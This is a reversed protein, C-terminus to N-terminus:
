GEDDIFVPQPATPPNHQVLRKFVDMEMEEPEFPTKQLQAKREVMSLDQLKYDKMTKEYLAALGADDTNVIRDKRLNKITDANFFDSKRYRDSQKQMDEVYTWRYHYICAPAVLPTPKRNWSYVHTWDPMPRRNCDFAGRHSVDYFLIHMLDRYGNDKLADVSFFSKCLPPEGNGNGYLNGPIQGKNIMRFDDIYSKGSQIAKDSGIGVWPIGLQEWPLDEYKKLFQKVSQNEKFYLFEDADLVIIYDAGECYREAYKHRGRQRQIDEGSLEIPIVEVNEYVNPLPATENDFETHNNDLVFIKDFGLSHHWWLWEKYAEMNPQYQLSVLNVRVNKRVMGNREVEVMWSSDKFTREPRGFKENVAQIVGSWAKQYDHGSIIGAMRVKPLWAEVDAKVAEYTHNADIYIFDFSGDEFENAASVSDSKRKEICQYKAAVEDFKKEALETTNSAKAQENWGNKWADVCVIKDFVGSQAWIESSEGAYSGVEVMKLGRGLKKEVEVILDELGAREGPSRMTYLELQEEKM